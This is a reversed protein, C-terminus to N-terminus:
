GMGVQARERGSCEKKEWQWKMGVTANVPELCRVERAVCLKNGVWRRSQVKRSAMMKRYGSAAEM